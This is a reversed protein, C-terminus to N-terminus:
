TIDQIFPYILANVHSMRSIGCRQLSSFSRHSGGYCINSGFIDTFPSRYVGLGSPLTFLHIPQINANKLGLLIKINDGGIYAPLITDDGIENYNSVEDNVELLNYHAISKTITSIGQAKIEFYTDNQTPGLALNYKGYDTWVKCGSTVTVHTPKERYVKVRLEEAFKGDILNQNAGTDFMVLVTKGKINLLQMIQLSHEGAEQLIDDDLQLEQVGRKTNFVSIPEDPDSYRTLSKPGSHIGSRISYDKSYHAVHVIDRFQLFAFNPVYSELAKIIDGNNPKAHMESFCFLISYMQTDDSKSVARCDGCKLISPVSSSNACVKYKCNESSQLCLICFKNDFQKKYEARQQPSIKFFEECEGINHNHGQIICPFKHKSVSKSLKVKKSQFSVNINQKMSPQASTTVASYSYSLDKNNEKQESQIAKVMHTDYKNLTSADLMDYFQNITDLLINYATRGKIQIIGEELVQLKRIFDLEAEHPLYQLIFVLFDNSFLYEQMLESPAYVSNLLSDIDNIIFHLKRYYAMKIAINEGASPVEITSMSLLILNTIISRPNGYRHILRQKMENFDDKYRVMEEQISPTLFSYLYEAKETMIDFGITIAEFRRMFEFIHLNPCNSFKPLTEYLKSSQSRLHYNNKLYINRVESAYESANEILKVTEECLQVNHDQLKLYDYFSKSLEREKVQILPLIKRYIEILTGRPLKDNLSLGMLNYMSKIQSRLIREQFILSKTSNLRYQDDLYSLDEVQGAKDSYYFEM